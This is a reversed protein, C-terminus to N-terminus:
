KQGNEKNEKQKKSYVQSCTANWMTLYILAVMRMVSGTIIELLSRGISHSPTTMDMSVLGLLYGDLGTNVMFKWESLTNMIDGAVDEANFLGGDQSLLATEEPIYLKDEALMPTDVDPPNVLSCYINYPKLEMQLGHALGRVAYKSASYGAFGIMGCLGALSSVFIIRGSKNNKMYPIVALASYLSGLYNINIMDQYIAIPIDECYGPRSIGASTILVDM